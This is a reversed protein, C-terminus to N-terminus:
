EKESAPAGRVLPVFRVLDLTRSTRQGDKNKTILLLRQVDYAAGVPIVIKGNPKLQDFLPPPVHRAACTVIICDFPAAGKLGYYGDGVRTAVNSYGLDKLTKSAREHLAEIIEITFVKDTIEALVAAQYGSGTGVELVKMGPKLKLARTMLAVIYPQSITQGHGIPLPSDAYAMHRYKEPVFRHRPVRLMAQIVAPDVITKRGGGSLQSDVMNRREDKREAFAAPRENSAANAYTAPILAFCLATVSLLVSAITLVFPHICASAVNGIRFVDQKREDSDM